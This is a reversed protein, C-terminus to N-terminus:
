DRPVGAVYASSLKTFGSIDALVCAGLLPESSPVTVTLGPTPNPISDTNINPNLNPNITNNDNNSNNTSNLTLSKIIKRLIINPSYSQILQNEDSNYNGNYGNYNNDIPHNGNINGTGAGTYQCELDKLVKNGVFYLTGLSQQLSSVDFAISRSLAYRSGDWGHEELVTVLPSEDESKTILTLNTLVELTLIEFERILQDNISISEGHLSLFNFLAGSSASEKTIDEIFSQDEITSNGNGINTGIGSGIDTDIDINLSNEM